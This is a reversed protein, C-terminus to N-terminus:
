GEDLKADFDKQVQLMRAEASLASAKKSGSGLTQGARKGMKEITDADTKSKNLEKNFLFSVADKFLKSKPPVPKGLKQYTKAVLNMRTVVKIRNDYPVSAPEIDEMDGEGVVEAMSEPLGSFKRDLWDSYRQGAQQNIEAELAAKESKLAKIEKTFNDGLTNVSKILGEDYEDPDLGCDFPKDEPEVEAKVEEKEVPKEKALIEAELIGAEEEVLKEVATQEVPTEDGSDKDDAVKEEELAEAVASDDDDSDMKADFSDQVDLIEQSIEDKTEEVKTEEVPTEEVAVEETKIEEEAM